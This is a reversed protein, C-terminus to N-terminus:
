LGRFDLEVQCALAKRSEDAAMEKAVDRLGSARGTGALGNGPKDLLRRVEDNYMTSLRSLKSAREAFFAQHRRVEETSYTSLKGTSFGADGTM